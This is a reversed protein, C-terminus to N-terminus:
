GGCGGQKAAKRYWKVAEAEDKAVGLGNSYAIGLITQARAYDQEAAKRYWKVAEKDDNLLGLQSDHLRGWVYQARPDGGEAASSLVEKDVLEFFDSTFKEGQVVLELAKTIVAERKKRDEEAKKKAVLAAEAKKRAALEEEPWRPLEGEDNGTLVLVVGGIVLAMGVAVLLGKVM